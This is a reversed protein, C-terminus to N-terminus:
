IKGASKASIKGISIFILGTIIIIGLIVASNKLVDTYGLKGANLFPYPYWKTIEGRILSYVFYVAPYILWNFSYSWKLGAKEVFLLWYLVYLIPIAYHLIANAVSDWGQLDAINRLVFFYVLGVVLIYM